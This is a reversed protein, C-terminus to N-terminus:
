GWRYTQGSSRRCDTNTHCTNNINTSQPPCSCVPRRALVSCSGGALGPCGASCPDVCAGAVCALTPSCDQDAQCEQGTSCGAVVVLM